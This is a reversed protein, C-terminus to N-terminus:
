SVCWTGDSPWRGTETHQLPPIIQWTMYSSLTWLVCMEADEVTKRSARSTSAMITFTKKIKGPKSDCRDSPVLKKISFIDKTQCAREKCNWTTFCDCANLMTHDNDALRYDSSIFYIFERKEQVSWNVEGVWLLLCRYSNCLLAQKAQFHLEVVKGLRM